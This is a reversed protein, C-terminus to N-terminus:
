GVTNLLLSFAEDRDFGENMFALLIQMYGAALEEATIGDETDEEEYEDLSAAILANVLNDIDNKKKRM